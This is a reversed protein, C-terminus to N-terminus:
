PVTPGIGYQTAFQSPEVPRDFDLVIRWLLLGLRCAGDRQGDLFLGDPAGAQDGRVRLILHDDCLGGTWSVHIKQDDVRDVQVRRDNSPRGQPGPDPAGFRAATLHGSLDVVAIVMKPEIGGRDYQVIIADRPPWQADRSTPISGKVLRPAGDEQIAFVRDTGDVIAHTVLEGRVLRRVIWVAEAGSWSSRNMLSPEISLSENQRGSVVSISLVPGTPEGADVMEADAARWVHNGNVQDLVSAPVPQGDIADLRDVVFRDRCEARMAVQCLEARRDDFHGIAVISIAGRPSPCAARRGCSRGSMSAVVDALPRPDIQDFSPSISPPLVGIAGEPIPRQSIEVLMDGCGFQVPPIRDVIFPCPADRGPFRWFWGRVAIERDDRGADRIASADVVSIIELGFVQNPGETPSPRGVATADATAGLGSSGPTSTPDRSIQQGILSSAILAAVALIAIPAVTMRLRHGPRMDSGRQTRLREVTSAVLWQPASANSTRALFAAAIRDDSWPEPSGAVNM